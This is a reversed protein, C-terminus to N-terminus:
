EELYDLNVPESKKEEEIVLDEDGIELDESLDFNWNLEKASDDVALPAGEAIEGLAMATTSSIATTSTEQDIEAEPDVTNQMTVPTTLDMVFEGEEEMPDIEIAAEVKEPANHFAKIDEEVTSDATPEAVAIQSISLAFISIIITRM